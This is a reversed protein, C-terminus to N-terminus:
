KKRGGASKKHSKKLSKKPSLSTSEDGDGNDDKGRQSGKQSRTVKRDKRDAERQKEDLWRELDKLTYTVKYYGWLDTTEDGDLDSRELWEVMGPYLKVRQLVRVQEYFTSRGGYVGIVESDAPKKGLAWELEGVRTIAKLITIYRKWITEISSRSGKASILGQDMDLVNM